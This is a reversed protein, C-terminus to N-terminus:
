VRNYTATGGTTNILGFSNPVTGSAPVTYVQTAGGGTVSLQTGVHTWTFNANGSVNGSYSGTGNSNFIFQEPLNTGTGTTGVRNWTGVFTGATSVSGGSSSGGGGCGMVLFLSILVLLFFKKVQM